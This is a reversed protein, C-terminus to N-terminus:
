ADYTNRMSVVPRLGHGEGGPQTLIQEELLVLCGAGLIWRCQDKGLKCYPTTSLFLASAEAARPGQGRRQGGRVASTGVDTFHPCHCGRRGIYGSVHISHDLTAGVFHHKAFAQCLHSSNNNKKILSLSMKKVYLYEKIFNESVKPMQEDARLHCILFVLSPESVVQCAGYLVEVFM